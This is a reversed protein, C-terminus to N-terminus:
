RSRALLIHAAFAAFISAFAWDLARAVRPSGRLLRAAREAALVMPVTCVLSVAIFVAGLAVLREAAAPDAPSVFQPLFTMFFLAIKPNLLNVGMGKAWTRALRAERGERGTPLALASGHRLAGWALWLLYAAGAVKFALFAQPAAVILASLGLAVLATHVAVGAMTGSLAALGAARGAAIARGLFFAMDPGPTLAVVVTAGVVAALVGPDQLV